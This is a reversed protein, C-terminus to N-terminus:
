IDFIIDVSFIDGTKLIKLNHYTAAKILLGQKHKLPDFNEGYVKATLRNDSFGTIEIKRGTFDYADFQFILENLYNVLLGELSDASINLAIDTKCDVKNIDTILSYMGIGANIFAEELCKGYARLGIDGSIDIIEYRM